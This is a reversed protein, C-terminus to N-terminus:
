FRRASAILLSLATGVGFGSFTGVTSFFLDKLSMQRGPAFLEQLVELAVGFLAVCIVGALRFGNRPHLSAAFGLCGFGLIHRTKDSGIFPQLPDNPTLGGWVIVGVLALLMGAWIANARWGGGHSQADFIEDQRAMDRHYRAARATAM